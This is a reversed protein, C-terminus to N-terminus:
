SMEGAFGMVLACAAIAATETRLIRPGLSVPVARVRGCLWAVEEETIGGEPGIVVGVTKAGEAAGAALASLSAGGKACEWPVLLHDLGAMERELMRLPAAPRIEPELIRGSQKVAERAIKRLRETKRAETKADPRAVCREMVVPQVAAAGLETAKQVIWELKDAKPLGQYLTLRLRPETDPLREVPEAAVETGCVRLKARWRAGSVLVEAEDGDALRLVRLAHQADEEPLLLRGAREEAFFRHM